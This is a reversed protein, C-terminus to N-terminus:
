AGAKTFRLWGAPLLGIGFLLAHVLLLALLQAKLFPSYSHTYVMNAGFWGLTTVINGLIALMMVTRPQTRRFRAVAINVILWCFICTAGIEKPDWSWAREWTLQAWIAALVTGLATFAAGMVVFIITHEALRSAKLSPFESFCRRLVFGGGIAGAIFASLYGMMIAFIHAGLLFGLRKDQSRAILFVAVLLACFCELGITLKILGTGPELKQFESTIADTSGFERAAQEFAASASMGRTSLEDIKERLHDELEAVRGKDMSPELSRRWSAILTELDRM